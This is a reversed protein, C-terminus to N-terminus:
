YLDEFHKMAFLKTLKGVAINIKKKKIQNKDEDKRKNYKPHKLDDLSPALDKQQRDIMVNVNRDLEPPLPTTDMIPNFMTKNGHKLFRRM